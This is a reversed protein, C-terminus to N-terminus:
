RGYGTAAEKIADANAEFIDVYETNPETTKDDCSVFAFSVLGMMLAPFLFNKKM